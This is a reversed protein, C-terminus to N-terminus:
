SGDGAPADGGDAYARRLEAGPYYAELIERYGQGSRARGIAGWQCMGVGHGNGRGRLVLGAAAGPGREVEFLTSRLVRGDARRLVFRIDNREVVYRGRDTRVELAAARGSATRGSVRIHSVTGVRVTDVGYYSALGASLSARLEAASWSEEWRHNPDADGWDSGDPRRDTVSRLYPADPLNWVEHVAATRGGGDAHYYARIPRGRWTLVEGATARVAEVAEPREAGIGGYVQDQVSGFVDFGLSDRRGLNALAYTRAAVAQAKVAQAEERGRPGIELPVVGLLYAELPLRNIAVIGRGPVAVVEAGGRYARGDIRVDGSGDRAELLLDQRAGDLTDGDAVALVGGGEAPRMTWTEAAPPGVEAGTALDRVRLAGSSRVVVSDPAVEVGVRLWPERSPLGGAEAPAAAAGRAPGAGGPTAAGGGTGATGLSACATLVAGAVASAFIRAGARVSGRM